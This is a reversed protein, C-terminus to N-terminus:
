PAAPDTSCHSVLIHQCSVFWCVFLRVFLCVFLCVFLLVNGYHLAWRKHCSEVVLFCDFVTVANVDSVNRLVFKTSIESLLIWQM